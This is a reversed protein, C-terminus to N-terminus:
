EHDPSELKFGRLNVADRLRRGEYKIAETVEELSKKEWEDMAKEFANKGFTRKLLNPGYSLEGPLFLSAWFMQYSKDFDTSLNACVRGDKYVNPIPPLFVRDTLKEVPKKTLFVYMMYRGRNDNYKFAAILYPFHVTRNREIKGECKTPHKRERIFMTRKIPPYERVQCPKQNYKGDYLLRYEQKNEHQSIVDRKIVHVRIAKGARMMDEERRAKILKGIRQQAVPVKEKAALKEAVLKARRKEVMKNVLNQVDETDPQRVFAIPMPEAARREVMEKILEQASRPEPEPEDWDEDEYDDEYDDYWYDDEVEYEDDVM